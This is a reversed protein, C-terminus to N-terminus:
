RKMLGLRRLILYTAGATGFALATAFFTGYPSDAWPFGGTNMGFLGT